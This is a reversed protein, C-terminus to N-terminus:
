GAVVEIEGTMWSHYSCHYQYTGAVTLTVTFTDGPNMMGSDFPNAGSPVSMSTATHAASDDNVWEITNNVGIVVKIISPSFGLTTSAGAGSSITVHTVIPSTSIPASSSTETTTTTIAEGVKFVGVAGKSADAFDHTVFPNKGGADPFYMDVIAGGSPPISLTQMGHEVNAPNGDIYVTDMLDGIVHFASWHNPGVNLIYLRVLENPEVSLPSAQYQNAKGNFVVYTPNGNLMDTYNGAFVGGVGPKANLYFESQILVYQGGPAPPLPTSPNVIIAGYMGNGIHLLVPPTGCHYMFVGPLPVTFNFSKSEGPAVPGYDTAWNVEAAHFDISHAMTSDNNFLTFDITDGQNVIITPGPVTGNFTWAHYTVNPAIEVNAEEAVLYIHRTTPTVVPQTSTRCCAITTTSQGTPSSSSHTSSQTGQSGSNNVVALSAVGLALIAVVLAAAGTTIATRRHLNARLRSIM